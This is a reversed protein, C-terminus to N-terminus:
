AADICSGGQKTLVCCRGSAGGDAGAFMPKESTAFLHASWYLCSWSSASLQRSNAVHGNVRASVRYLRFMPSYGSVGQDQRTTSTTRIAGHM